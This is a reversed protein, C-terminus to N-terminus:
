SKFIEMRQSHPFNWTFFTITVIILLLLSHCSMDLITVDGSFMLLFHISHSILYAIILILLLIFLQSRKDRGSRSYIILILGIASLLTAIMFLMQTIDLIMISKM